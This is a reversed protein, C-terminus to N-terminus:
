HVWRCSPAPPPGKFLSKWASATAVRRELQEGTVEVESRRSEEAVAVTESVAAKAAKCQFFNRMTTQQKAERPKMAPPPQASGDGAVPTRKAFFQSLKQQRGSFEPFNKTCYQPCKESPVLRLALEASVPCHDSDEVDPHIECESLAEAALGRDVFVYDIRTGYNNARCNLKTNWCTFAEKREPHRQRFADVFQAGPLQVTTAKWESSDDDDKDKKQVENSAPADLGPVHLFHDLWQRGPQSEFEQLINFLYEIFLLFRNGSGSEWDLSDM